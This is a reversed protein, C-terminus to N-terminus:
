IGSFLVRLYSNNETKRWKKIYSGSNVHQHTISNNSAHGKFVSHRNVQTKKSSVSAKVMGFLTALM